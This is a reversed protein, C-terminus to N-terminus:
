DEKLNVKMRRDAVGSLDIEEPVIKFFRFESPSLYEEPPYREDPPMDSSPFLKECYLKIVKAIEEKEVMTAKGKAQISDFASIPSSSDYIVFALYPNQLINKVHLSDVASLFYFNFDTDHAYFVVNGWSKGKKDSTAIVMYKNRKIIEGAKSLM